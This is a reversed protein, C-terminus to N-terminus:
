FQVAILSKDSVQCQGIGGSVLGLTPDDVSFQCRMAHDRDGSLTALVKGTFENVFGDIGITYDGFYNGQSGWDLTAWTPTNWHNYVSEFEVGQEGTQVRVYTGHFHEGDKGLQSHIKGHSSDVSEWSLPVRETAGAHTWRGAMIGTDPTTQCASLSLLVLLLQAIPM